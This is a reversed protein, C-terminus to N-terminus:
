KHVEVAIDGHKELVEISAGRRGRHAVFSLTSKGLRLNDFRIWDLWEPMAPSRMVMRRDFGRVEM